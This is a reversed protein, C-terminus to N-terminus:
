SDYNVMNTVHEKLRSMQFRTVEINLNNFAFSSSSSISKTTMANTVLAHNMKLAEFSPSSRSQTCAGHDLNLNNIYWKSNYKKKSGPISDIIKKSVKRLKVIFTCCGLNQRGKCCLIICSGNNDTHDKEHYIDKNENVLYREVQNYISKRDRASLVTEILLPLIPIRNRNPSIVQGSM